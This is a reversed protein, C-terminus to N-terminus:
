IDWKSRKQTVSLKLGLVEMGAYSLKHLAFTRTGGEQKALKDLAQDLEPELRFSHARPKTM